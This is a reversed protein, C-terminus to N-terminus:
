FSTILREELLEAALAIDQPPTFSFPHMECYAAMGERPDSFKTGSTFTRQTEAFKLTTIAPDDTSFNFFLRRKESLVITHGMAFGKLLNAPDMQDILAQEYDRLGDSKGHVPSIYFIPQEGIHALASAVVFARTACNGFGDRIAPLPNDETYEYDPVTGM